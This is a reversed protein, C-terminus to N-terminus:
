IAVVLIVELRVHHETFYTKLTELLELGLLVILIGSFSRQMVPLLRDVSEIHTTEVLVNKFFLVYLVVTAVLLLAILLVELAAVTAAEIKETIEGKPGVGGM